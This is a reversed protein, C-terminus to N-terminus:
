LIRVKQCSATIDASDKAVSVQAIAMAHCLLEDVIHKVHPVIDNFEEEVKVSALIELVVDMNQVFQGGSEEKEDAKRSVPANIVKLLESICWQMRSFLYSGLDQFLLINIELSSM